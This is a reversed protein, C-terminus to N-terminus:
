TIAKEVRNLTKTYYDLETAADIRRHLVPCSFARCAKSIDLESHDAESACQRCHKLLRMFERGTTQHALRLAAMAAQLSAGNRMCSECLADRTLTGCTACRSSLCYQDITRARRRQGDRSASVSLMTERNAVRPLERFWKQVDVNLLDFLRKLPPITVNVVYYTTNIRHGADLNRVLGCVQDGRVLESPHAVLSSYSTGPPGALVVYPVREKMLPAARRDRTLMRTAVIAAPPPRAYSGLRVEKWFILDRLSVRGAVISTWEREVARRAAKLIHPPIENQATLAVDDGVIPDCSFVTRLVSELLRRLAGCGDRRVTEIGKADYVPRTTPSPPREYMMGAYRKKAFLVCPLYIKELQLKM